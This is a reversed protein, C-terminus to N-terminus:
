VRVLTWNVFKHIISTILTQYPIWDKEAIKKIKPIDNKILRINIAKRENIKELTNWAIWIFDKKLNEFKKPDTEKLSKYKWWEYNEIIAQEEKDIYKM